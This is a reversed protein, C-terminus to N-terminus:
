KVAFQNRYKQPSVSMRQKFAQRFVRDSRYGLSEALETIPVRTSRLRDVALGIRWDHMYEIPPQGILKTFRGAFASRSLNAISALKSVTWKYEPEAHIASLVESICKDKMGKLWGTPYQNELLIYTRLMDLIILEAMQRAVAFDGPKKDKILFKIAPQTLPLLGAEHSRLIIFKPLASLICDGRGYQFTFALGLLRCGEGGGGHIVTSAVPLHNGDVPQLRYSDKWPLDYLDTGLIGPSSMLKSVGGSPVLLIDGSNLAVPEDDDMQVWCEGAVVSLCYGPDFGIVNVAWPASMDWSSISSTEVKLSLLLHSLLDM